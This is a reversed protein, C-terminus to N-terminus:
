PPVDTWPPFVPVKWYSTWPLLAPWIPFTWCTDMQWSRGELVTVQVEHDYLRQTKRFLVRPAEFLGALIKISNIFISYFTQCHHHNGKDSPCEM